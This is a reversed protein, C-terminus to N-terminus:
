EDYFNNIPDKRCDKFEDQPDAGSTPPQASPAPIKDFAEKIKSIKADIGEASKVEDSFKDLQDTVQKELNGNNEVKGQLEALHDNITQLQTTTLVIKSDNEDFGEVKLLTNVTTFTKNMTTQTSNAPPAPAEPIHSPGVNALSPSGEASKSQGGHLGLLEGLRQLFTREESLGDEPLPIACNRFAGVMENAAKAPAKEQIIEDVLGYDKCEKATLWPHAKMVAIMDDANRKGRSAYKDAIIRDITELHKIDEANAIGMQKLQDANMNQWYFVEKSSCHVYLMCDSYMKITKAGFLWTAASANFSDHILTVDGHEAFAHSIQVAAAVDGGPSAMRVTVPKGKNESLFQNVRWVQFSSIEGNIRLVNNAM